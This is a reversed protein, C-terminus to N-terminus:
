SGSITMRSIRITPSGKGVFFTLDTGICDISNLLDKINGAIAVGKVPQVFEGKEIWLGSAGVSFDGSIPNATHMGMVETIYLGKDVERLLKERSTDGPAIYFNTTGVEPTGKFSARTGNGTSTVGDKAATYTNHMFGKLKGKEILVTKGAPVGEGDMPASVVAGEMAGDDIITLLSSGVQQGVKGAFLSKGKQVAEASLAPAIVGLFNTAVYPDLVITARQTGIEKAGLMRVAKEAGEEGVQKPDLQDFKLRYQLGFGTQQEDGEQAVLFAYAGCYAGRYEQNIGNSNVIAVHYLADQYGCRETIKVRRDYERAYREIDKALQIKKEEPIQEIAPDYIDLQPYKDDGPQPLRNFEDQAAIKANDLAQKVVFDLGNATLDATYAFGMRGDKIVRMGLGRTEAVKMNEVEQDAVEITLEKDFMIFSEAEDAGQKMAKQVTEEGLKTLETFM